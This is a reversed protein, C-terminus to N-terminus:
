QQKPKAKKVQKAKNNNKQIAVSQRAGFSAIVSINRRRKAM